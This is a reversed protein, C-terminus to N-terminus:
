QGALAPQSGAALVTQSGDVLNLAIIQRSEWPGFSFVVQSGDPVWALEWVGEFQGLSKPEGGALDLVMVTGIETMPGELFALYAIQNGDPSFVPHTAYAPGDYDPGLLQENGQRPRMYLREEGSAAYTHRAYTLLNGDPSWSVLGVPEDWAVYEQGELDYYAFLGSGEMNFVEAFSLFRGDPSWNPGSLAYGREPAVLELTEGSDLDIARIGIALAPDPQGRTIFYNGDVATGFALLHTGPKWALGAPRGDLIQSQEGTALNTVWLGSTFEYGSAVPTGVERGYALLVGDSSLHPYGYEVAASDGGILNADFTVQRPTESGAELVWVNNDPGLYAMAPILDEPFTTATPEWGSEPSSVPTPTTSVSTPVLISAPHTEGPANAATPTIVGVSVQGCALTALILVTIGFGIYINQIRKAM